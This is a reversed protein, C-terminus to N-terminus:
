FGYKLALIHTNERFTYQPEVPFAAHLWLIDAVTYVLLASAVGTIVM